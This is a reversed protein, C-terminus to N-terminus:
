AREPVTAVPEPRDEVRVAPMFRFALLWALGSTVLM